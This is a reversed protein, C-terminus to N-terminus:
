RHLQSGRTVPCPSAAGSGWGHIQSCEFVLESGAQQRNAWEARGQSKTPSVSGASHRSGYGTGEQGSEGRRAPLLSRLLVRRGRGPTQRCLLLRLPKREVVPLATRAILCM